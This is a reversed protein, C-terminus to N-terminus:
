QICKNLDGKDKNERTKLNMGCADTSLIFLSGNLHGKNFFLKEL